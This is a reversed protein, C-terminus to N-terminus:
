VEDWALTKAQFANMDAANRNMCEPLNNFSM